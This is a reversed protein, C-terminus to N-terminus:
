KRAMQQREIEAMYRLREIIPLQQTCAAECQGCEICDAATAETPKMRTKRFDLFEVLQADPANFAHKDNYVTLYEKIRIEQPCDKCYGCDTCVSNMFEGTHAAIIKAREPNYPTTDNAAAVAEDVEKTNSFGVLSVDVYPYQVMFRLAAHIIDEGEEGLYSLGERNRPILGGGLPNMAVVGMHMQKAAKAGAERLFYNTANLGLIVSEFDGKEIYEAIIDKQMHTSFGIHKVLGEQKARLFGEMAGNPRMTNYYDEETILCWANIIDLETGLREVSRAISAYADEANKEPGPGFKSSIYYDSRPLQRLAMGFITESKDECYGPATDFFNVGHQHAYLVLDRNQEDPLSTDFRMGGMGIPSVMMGTKGFSIQQM